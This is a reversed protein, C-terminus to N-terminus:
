ARCAARPTGAVVVVLAVDHLLHPAAQALIRSKRKVTRLAGDNLMPPPLKSMSKTSRPGSRSASASYPSRSRRARSSSPPMRSASVVSLSSFGSSRTRSRGRARRPGPRRHRACRWRAAHEADAALFLDRAEAVRGDALVVVDVDAERGGVAIARAGDGRRKTGRWPPPRTRRSLRTFISLPMVAARM